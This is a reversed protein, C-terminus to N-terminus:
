QLHSLVITVVDRIIYKSGYGVFIGLLALSTVIMLASRPALSITFKSAVTEDTKNIEVDMIALANLILAFLPGGILILPSLESLVPVDNLIEFPEMLGTVQFFEELLVSSFFYLAPFIAALSWTRLQRPSIVKRLARFILISRSAPTADVSTHEELLLGDRGGTAPLTFGSVDVDFAAAVSLLTEHSCHGTTELRQITRLSVGAVEALQLQSWSRQQREQKVEDAVHERPM